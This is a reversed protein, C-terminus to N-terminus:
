RQGICIYKFGLSEIENRDLINRLDVITKQELMEYAKQYKEEKADTPPTTAETAPDTKSTEDTTKKHSCAALASVLLCITMIIALIKKM